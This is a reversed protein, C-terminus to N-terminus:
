KLDTEFTFKPKTEFSNYKYKSYGYNDYNRNTFNYTLPIEFIIKDTIHLDSNIGSSIITFDGKDKSSKSIM